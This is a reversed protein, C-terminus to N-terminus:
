KISIKKTFTKGTTNINLFYVGPVMGTIDVEIENNNKDAVNERWVVNGLIDNLTLSTIKVDDNSLQVTFKGDTPNPYVRASLPENKKEDIATSQFGFPASTPSCGNPDTVTVTYFGEQTPTHFQGTAGPIPIGNVSWQNGSAASSALIGASQSITPIAPLPYITVQVPQSVSSCATTDTIMVSYSGSATADYIASTAGQLPNGNLMWQYTYNGNNATLTVADGECAGLQHSTITAAPGACLKAAGMAATGFWVGNGRDFAISLVENEPLGSNSVNYVTWVNGDFSGAGGETGVWVLGNRDAGVTTVANDPIGSNTIDYVTFLAGDFKLLGGNGTGIWKNNNADVAISTVNNDPLRSNGTNYVTWATGDFSALGALETGVWVVNNRDVEIATVIDSPIGSNTTNYIVRNFAADQWVIGGGETALWKGNNTDIAISTIRNPPLKPGPVYYTAGTSSSSFMSFGAEMGALIHSASDMVLATITSSMIVTNWSTNFRALANDTGFWKNNVSDILIANVTNNAIGSNSTNFVTWTANQAASIGVIALWLIFAAYFKKM